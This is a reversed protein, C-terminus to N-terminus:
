LLEGVGKAMTIMQAIDNVLCDVEANPEEENHAKAMGMALDLGDIVGNNYAQAKTDGLGFEKVVDDYLDDVPDSDKNDDLDFTAGEGMGSDPRHDPSTSASPTSTETPGAPLPGSPSPERPSRLLSSQPSVGRGELGLRTKAKAMLKEVDDKGLLDVVDKYGQLYAALESTETM